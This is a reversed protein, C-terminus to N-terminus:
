LLFFLSIWGYDSASPFQEWYWFLPWLLGLVSLSSVSAQAAIESGHSFFNLLIYKVMKHLSHIKIIHM